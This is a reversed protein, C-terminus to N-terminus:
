TRENWCRRYYQRNDRLPKRGHALEGTRYDLAYAGDKTIWVYLPDDYTDSSYRGLRNDEVTGITEFDNEIVAYSYGQGARLIRMVASRAESLTCGRMVTSEVNYGTLQIRYLDKPFRKLKGTRPDFLSCKWGRFTNEDWVFENLADDYYIRGVWEGDIDVNCLAEEISGGLVEEARRIYERRCHNMDKAIFDFSDVKKGNIFLFALCRKM